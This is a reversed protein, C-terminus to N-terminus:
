TVSSTSGRRREVNRVRTQMAHSNGIANTGTMFMDGTAQVYKLEFMNRPDNVSQLTESLQTSPTQSGDRMSVDTDPQADETISDHDQKNPVNDLIRKTTMTAVSALVKRLIADYDKAEERTITVLTPNLVPSASRKDTKSHFVPIAMTEALPSDMGPLSEVPSDHYYSRYTSQKKPMFAANTPAEPVEYMCLVDNSSFDLESLTQSDYGIKYFRHSFIEAFILRERTLGRGIKGVFIDKLARVSINK